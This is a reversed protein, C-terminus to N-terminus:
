GPIGNEGLPDPAHVREASWAAFALLTLVAGAACVGPWGWAPYLQTALVAGISGGTFYAVMYATTVRSRVRLPYALIRTQNLVHAGQVGVDLVLLGAIIFALMNGHALLGWAIAICALFAGTALHVRRHSALRGAPTATLAGAAGLLGFLGIEATSFHYPPHAFLFPLATWMLQFICFGLMGLVMRHRLFPEGRVMAVVSSLLRAYSQGPATPLDPLVRAMSIALVGILCAAVVYVMRWGALQAITGSVTRALLIGLLLGTMVIGVANGRQGPAALSATFPILINIATGAVGVAALAAVLVWVNPACAALVLALVVAGLMVVILRRRPLLDGLPVLLALGVAYGLQNGTMCLGVVGSSAHLHGTLSPLLPQAYYNNAVILGCSLAIFFNLARSIGGGAAARGAAQRLNTNPAIEEQTVM